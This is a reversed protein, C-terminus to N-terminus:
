LKEFSITRKNKSSSIIYYHSGSIKEIIFNSVNEINGIETLYIKGKRRLIDVRFLTHAIPEYLFLKSLQGNQKRRYFSAVSDTLINDLAKDSRDLIPCDFGGPIYGRLHDKAKYVIFFGDRSDSYFNGVYNRLESENEKLNKKDYSSIIGTSPIWKKFSLETGSKSCFIVSNGVSIKAFVLEGAECTSSLFSKTETFANYYDISLKNHFQQLVCLRPSLGHIDYDIVNSFRHTFINKIGGHIFDVSFADINQKEKQLCVIIKEYPNSDDIKIEDYKDPLNFVYLRSFVGSKDRTMFSINNSEPDLLALDKLGDNGYDFTQIIANKGGFCLESKEQGLELPELITFDGNSQLIGAGNLYKSYVPNIDTIGNGTFYTVEPYFELNDKQFLISVKNCDRNVYMIDIKGDRNFDAYIYKYPLEHLYVTKIKSYSSIGDGLIFNIQNRIVYSIDAYGDLNYDFSKIQSIFGPTNLSRIYSFEGRSNNYFCDLKGSFLNYAVFDKYSDSNMDIFATEGFCLSSQLINTSKKAYNKIVSIGKMSSGSFLLEPISDRNTDFANLFGPEADLTLVTHFSIVGSINIKLMGANRSKTSIYCFENMLHSSYLVLKQLGAPLKNTSRLKFENGPLGELIYIERGKIDIAM